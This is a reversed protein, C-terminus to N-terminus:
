FGACVVLSPTRKTDAKVFVFVSNRFPVTEHNHARALNEQTQAFNQSNYASVLFKHMIIKKITKEEDNM